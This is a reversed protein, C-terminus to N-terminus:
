YNKPYVEFGRVEEGSMPTQSIKLPIYHKIIVHSYVGCATRLSLHCKEAVHVVTTDTIYSINTQKWLVHM